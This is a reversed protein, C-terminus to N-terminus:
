GSAQQMIHIRQQRDCCRTPRVARAPFAPPARKNIVSSSRAYMGKKSPRPTGSVSIVKSSMPSVSLPMSTTHCKEVELERVNETDLVPIKDCMFRHALYSRAMRSAPLLAKILKRLAYLSCM